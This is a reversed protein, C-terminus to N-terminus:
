NSKTPTLAVTATPVVTMRLAATMTPVATVTLTVTVTPAVTATVESGPMLPTLAWPPEPEPTPTLWAGEIDYGAEYWHQIGGELVFLDAFGRAYLVLAAEGGAREDPSLDYLVVTHTSDLEQARDAVEHGAIHLAGPIHAQEFSASSGVDVVTVEDQFGEVDEGALARRLRSPSV